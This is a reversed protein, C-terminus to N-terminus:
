AAVLEGDELFPKIQILRPRSLGMLEAEKLAQEGEEKTARVAWVHPAQVKRDLYVVAVGSDPDVGRALCSRRINSRM